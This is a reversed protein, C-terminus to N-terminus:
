HRRRHHHRPQANPSSPPTTRLARATPVCHAIQACLYRIFMRMEADTGEFIHKFVDIRACCALATVRQGRLVPYYRFQVKLSLADDALSSEGMYESM